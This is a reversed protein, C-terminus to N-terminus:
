HPLEQALSVPYEQEVIEQLKRLSDEIVPIARGIRAVQKPDIELLWTGSYGVGTLLQIYQRLPLTHYVLPAHDWGEPDIDHIHTHVVKKLYDPGPVGFDRQRLRSVWGHGMDWGIGLKSSNIQRVLKVLDKYRDGVRTRNQAYPLLEIAIQINEGSLEAEGSIWKLMQLTRQFYEPKIPPNKLGSAGHINIIVQSNQLLAARLAEDFIPQLINRVEPADGQGSRTLQDSVAYPAHFCAYLNQDLIVDVIESLTFGADQASNPMIELYHFGMKALSKVLDRGGLDKLWTSRLSFGYKSKVPEIM